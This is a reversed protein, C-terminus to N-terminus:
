DFILTSTSPEQGPSLTEGIQEVTTEPSVGRAYHKIVAPIKPESTRPEEETLSNRAYKRMSRQVSGLLNRSTATFSKARRAAGGKAVSHSEEEEELPEQEVPSHPMDPDEYFGCASAPRVINEPPEEFLRNTPRLPCSKRRAALNPVGSPALYNDLRNCATEDMTQRARSIRYSVLRVYPIACSRLQQNLWEDRSSGQFVADFAASWRSNGCRHSLTALM